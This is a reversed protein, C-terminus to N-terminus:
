IITSNLSSEEVINSAKFHKKNSRKKKFCVNDTHGSKNCYSCYKSSKNINLSM